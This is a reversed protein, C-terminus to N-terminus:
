RRFLEVREGGESLDIQFWDIIKRIDLKVEGDRLKLHLKDERVEVPTGIYLRDNGSEDVTDVAFRM